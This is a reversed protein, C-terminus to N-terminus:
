AATGQLAAFKRRSRRRRLYVAVLGAFLVLAPVGLITSYFWVVDEARTHRIPVDEESVTVGAFEEEGGLWTVIDRALVANLGFTGLVADAFIKADAIVVTRSRRPWAEGDSGGTAAVADGAADGSAEAAAAGAGHEPFILAELTAMLIHNGRAEGPEDLEFNRNRDPFTTPMSRVVFYPRPPGEGSVDVWTSDTVFAGAEEDWFASYDGPLLYGAGLFVVASGFSAQSASSTAEHVSVRDTVILRRDAPGGRQRLHQVDDVLLEPVFRIGLRRELPGLQFESDPDLALLLSGGRALYRDLSALEAEQFPLRPGLVVVAAADDPVDQALGTAMGLFDVEFNLARFLQPLFTVGGLGAEALPGALAPDNLEGHGTTFYVRRVERLLSMLRQQVEADFTRLRSRTSPNMEEGLIISERREGAVLVITGEQTVSYERALDPVLLQDHAEIAVQGTANGLARFYRMAEDKVPNVEPYFLLVRLPEPLSRVMAVTAEGPSATKFYSLDVSRDRVAVTYGTVLLFSGVLAVNLGLRAMGRVRIAEIGAGAGRAHRHAGLAIQAALAPLLSAALLIPWGVSLVARYQRFAEESGFEIGLWRMGADSSVLYLLLAIAVGAYCVLLTSEVRRAEARATAWALVRWAVCVLVVASEVLAAVARPTGVGGVIREGIFLVVLGGFLAWTLWWPAPSKVGM